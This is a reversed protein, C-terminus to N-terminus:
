RQCTSPSTSPAVTGEGVEGALRDIKKVPVTSGRGRLHNATGMKEAIRVSLEDANLALHSVPSGRWNQESAM